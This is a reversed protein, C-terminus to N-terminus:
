CFCRFNLIENPVACFDYDLNRLSTISISTERSAGSNGSGGNNGTNDGPTSPPTSPDTPPTPTIPDTPPTPTIPDTPTSPDTVPELTFGSEFVFFPLDKIQITAANSNCSLRSLSNDFVFGEPILVPGSSRIYFNDTHTRVLAHQGNTPTSSFSTFIQPVLVRIFNGDSNVFGNELRCNFAQSSSVNINASLNVFWERTSRPSPEAQFCPSAKLGDSDRVCTTPATFEFTNITITTPVPKPPTNSGGGGSSRRKTFSVEQSSSVERSGEGCSVTVTRIDQGHRTTTVGRASYTRTTSVSYVNNNKTADSSGVKQDNGNKDEIFVSCSFDSNSSARVSLPFNPNNSSTDNCVDTEGWECSRANASM